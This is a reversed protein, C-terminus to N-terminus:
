RGTKDSAYYKRKRETDQRNPIQGLLSLGLYKEVDEPTNIKDDLLFLVLYIGYVVIACVLAILMIKLRSVPNSPTTPVKSEDAVSSYPQGHMLDQNLTECMQKALANSLDAARQPDKATISVYVFRSNEENNISIMRRLQKNSMVLGQDYIVKELVNDLEAVKMFDKVLANSISVESTSTNSSEKMVYTTATATYVDEHTVTLYIYLGVAVIVAVLAMIWWCHKFVAWLDSLRIEMERNKEEEM